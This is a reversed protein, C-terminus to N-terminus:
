CAHLNRNNGILTYLAQWLKFIVDKDYVIEGFEYNAM